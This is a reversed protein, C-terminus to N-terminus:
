YKFPNWSPNCQNQYINRNTEKPSLSWLQAVLCHNKSHWMQENWNGMCLRTSALLNSTLVHQHVGSPTHICLWPSGRRNTILLALHPLALAVGSRPMLPSCHVTGQPRGKSGWRKGALSNRTTATAMTIDSEAGVTWRGTTKVAWPWHSESTLYSVAREQQTEREPPHPPGLFVCKSSSM